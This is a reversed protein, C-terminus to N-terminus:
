RRRGHRQAGGACEDWPGRGGPRARHAGAGLALVVRAPPMAGGLMRRRPRGSRQRALREPRHVRTAGPLAADARPRPPPLGRPPQETAGGRECCRREGGRGSGPPCNGARGGRTLGTDDRRRDRGDCRAGGGRDGAGAGDRDGDRDKSAASVFLSGADAPLFLDEARIGNSERSSEQGSVSGLRRSTGEVVVSSRRNTAGASLEASQTQATSQFGIQIKAQQKDRMLSKSQQVRDKRTSSSLSMSGKRFSQRVAEQKSEHREQDTMTEIIKGISEVKSPKNQALHACRAVWQRDQRMLDEAQQRRDESGEESSVLTATHFVIGMAEQFRVMRDESMKLSASTHFVVALDHTEGKDQKQLRGRIANYPEDGMWYNNMVTQEFGQKQLYAFTRKIGQVYNKESFVITYRLSNRKETDVAGALARDIGMDGGSWGQALLDAVVKRTMSMASKCIHEEGRLSGGDKKAGSKIGVTLTESLKLNTAYVRDCAPRAEAELSRERKLQEREESSLTAELSKRDVGHYAKTGISFLDGPPIPVMAWMRVMDEWYQLKELGTTLRFQEFSHHAKEQKTEISEDTHFQLEFPFGAQTQFSGNIGLYDTDQGKRRWFNKITNPVPEIGNERFLRVTENVGQVYTKTKLVMTYRLLDRLSNITRQFTENQEEDSLGKVAGMKRIVKSFTSEREKINFELGYMRGKCQKCIAALMTTITEENAAAEALRTDVFGFLEDIREQTFASRLEAEKAATRAAEAQAKKDLAASGGHKKKGGQKTQETTFLLSLADVDQAASGLTSRMRQRQANSFALEKSVDVADAGHETLFKVINEWGPKLNDKALEQGNLGSSDIAEINCGARTLHEVCTLHANHCAWLFPTMGFVPHAIETDAGAELAAEVCDSHGNLAAVQLLTGQTEPDLFNPDAGKKLLSRATEADGEKFAEM